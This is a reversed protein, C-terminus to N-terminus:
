CIRLIYLTNIYEVGCDDRDNRHCEAAIILADTFTFM